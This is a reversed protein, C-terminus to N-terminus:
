NAEVIWANPIHRGKEPTVASSRTINRGRYYLVSSSGGDLNCAQYAGYRHLIDTLEGLTIGISYGPQRGDVVALLMQGDQKQAIASRPQLGWGSSGSILQAGNVILAPSFQMADRAGATLANTINLRNARDMGIVKMKSDSSEAIMRGGSMVMGFVDGGNGTGEPDSFGSANIGLVANNSRCIDRLYSGSSGLTSSVALRVQAPNKVIAMRGSYGDGHLAVIVIGNRTDIACVPDGYVTEIGTEEDDYDAQDILLYGDEDVVDATEHAAMYAWFSKPDIEAYAESFQERIDDWTDIAAEGAGDFSTDAGSDWSSNYSEQQLEITMRGSMVDDIVSQPLFLTALWQHNMTGMATEIYITRWKEIFPIHSFVLVCYLAILGAAAAAIGRLTRRRSRRRRPKKKRGPAAAATEELCVWGTNEQNKEGNM